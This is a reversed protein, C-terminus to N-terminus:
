VYGYIGRVSVEGSLVKKITGDENEVILEGDDDIDIAKAIEEKTGNIIRIEKGLLISAERSINIIESFDEEYIFKNYLQELNNIISAIIAKRDVEQGVYNGISTAKDKIDEPFEKTNVNIGIGMIVYNIREIEANMETLIGCIKKGDLVIDNPWKIYSEIKMEKLSKYVAAAGLLTLKSAYIPPINPRLLISMWIGSGIPSSWSRGIRGKGNTQEEAVVVTGHVEGRNALRKCEINTSDISEYYFYNKGLEKTNLYESIEGYSLIDPESNLKYGKKSISEIKYGDERLAKIHKWIAARSIGFRESLKEGSIFDNKNTKLIELIENRM